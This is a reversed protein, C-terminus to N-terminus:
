IPLTLFFGADPALSIIRTEPPYKKGNGNNIWASSLDAGLPAGDKRLMDLLDEITADFPVNVTTSMEEYRVEVPLGAAVQEPSFMAERYVMPLYKVLMQTLEKSLESPQPVALAYVVEKPVGEAKLFGALEGLCQLRHNEIANYQNLLPELKTMVLEAVAVLRDLPEGAYDEIDKIIEEMKGM